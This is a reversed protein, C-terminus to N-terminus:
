PMVTDFGLDWRYPIPGIHEKKNEHVKEFALHGRIRGGPRLDGSLERWGWGRFTDSLDTVLASGEAIYNLSMPTDYPNRPYNYFAVAYQHLARLSAASEGRQVGPVPEHRTAEDFRGVM